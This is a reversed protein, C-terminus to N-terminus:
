YDGVCAHALGIVIVTCNTCKYYDPNGVPKPMTSLM